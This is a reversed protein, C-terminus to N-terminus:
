PSDKDPPQDEEITALLPHGNQEALGVVTRAKTEAIDRTYIGAVGRGQHHVALMIAEASTHDLHFVHMLVMVVFEMPTFDDNHLMVKYLPPKATKVKKKTRVKEKVGGHPSSGNVAM